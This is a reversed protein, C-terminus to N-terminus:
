KEDKNNKRRVVFWIILLVAAVGAVAGFLTMQSSDGTAGNEWLNGGEDMNGMEEMNGSEDEVPTNTFVAKATDYTTEVQMIIESGDLIYGDQAHIERFYYGGMPLGDVYILGDDDTTYQGIVTGDEKYLNFVVGSLPAGTVSDSKGLATKGTKIHIDTTKKEEDEDPPTTRKRLKAKASVNDGQEMYPIIVLWSNLPYWKNADYDGQMILYVGYDLNITEGLKVGDQDAAIQNKDVYDGLEIGLMAYQSQYKSDTLYEKQIRYDPNSNNYDKFTDDIASIDDQNGNLEAVKYIRFTGDYDSDAIESNSSHITLTGAGAAETTVTSTCLTSVALIGIMIKTIINKTISM